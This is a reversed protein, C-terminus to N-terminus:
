EGKKRDGDVKFDRQEKSSGHLKSRESEKKREDDTLITGRGEKAAGQQGAQESSRKRDADLNSDRGGTENKM